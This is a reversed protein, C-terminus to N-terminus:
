NVCLCHILLVSKFFIVDVEANQARIGDTGQPRSRCHGLRPMLLNIRRRGGGHVDHVDGCAPLRYHVSPSIVDLDINIAIALFCLCLTVGTRGEGHHVYRVPPYHGFKRHLHHLRGGLIQLLRPPCYHHSIFRM